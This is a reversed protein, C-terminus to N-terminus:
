TNCKHLPRDQVVFGSNRDSAFTAPAFRIINILIQKNNNNFIRNIYNFMKLSSFFVELYDFFCNFNFKWRGQSQFRPSNTQCDIAKRVQRGCSSHASNSNHQIQCNMRECFINASQFLLFLLAGWLNSFKLM